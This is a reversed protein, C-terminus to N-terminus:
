DWAPRLVLYQEREGALAEYKQALNRHITAISPESAAIARELEELARARFYKADWTM